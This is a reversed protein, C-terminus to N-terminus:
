QPLIYPEDPLREVSFVIDKLTRTMQGDSSPGPMFGALQEGINDRNALFSDIADEDIDPVSFSTPSGIGDYRIVQV